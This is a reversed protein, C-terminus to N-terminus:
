QTLTELLQRAELLDSTDLGETFWGYTTQLLDIAEPRRGEDHLLRALGTAASVEFLRAEQERATELAKRYSAEAAVPDHRATLILDGRTRHLEALFTRVGDAGIDALCQEMLDLGDQARGTQALAEAIWVSSRTRFLLFGGADHEAVADQMM